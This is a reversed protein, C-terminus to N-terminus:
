SGKAWGALEEPTLAGLKRAIAKGTAEYIVSFPLAGRQNGLSRALTVGKVGALGIPFGVPHRGLFERVPEASDIALGAVQWGDAGQARHFRDLMPMEEVCPPCWTAWFNLVLPRGRLDALALEGGEPREFRLPWIDVPPGPGEVQMPGASSAAADAASGREAFWRMTWGLGVSALGVGAGILLVRRRTM